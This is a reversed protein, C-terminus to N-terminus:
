LMVLWVRELVNHQMQLASGVEAEVLETFAFAWREAPPETGGRLGGCRVVVVVLERHEPALCPQHRLLLWGGWLDEVSRWRRVVGNHRQRQRGRRVLYVWTHQLIQLREGWMLVLLPLLLLLAPVHM